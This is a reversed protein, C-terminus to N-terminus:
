GGIEMALVSVAPDPADKPLLVTVGDPRAETKLPTHAPDTMLYARRLQDGKVAVDLRGNAPWDFM